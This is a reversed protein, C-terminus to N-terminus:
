LESLLTSAFNLDKSPCRTPELLGELIWSPPSRNAPLFLNSYYWWLHTTMSKWGYIGILILAAKKSEREKMVWPLIAANFAARMKIFCEWKSLVGCYLTLGSVRIEEFFNRSTANTLIGPITELERQQPDNCHPVILSVEPPLHVMEYQGSSVRRRVTRLNIMRIQCGLWQYQLFFCAHNTRFIAIKLNKVDSTHWPVTGGSDVVSSVQLQEDFYDFVKQIYPLQM